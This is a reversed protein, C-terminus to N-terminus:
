VTAPAAATQAAEAQAISQELAVLQRGAQYGRFMFFLALVHMGAGLWDFIALSVVGDLLFVVMGAIYAWFQRKNALVGFGVFMATIFIDLVIAIVKTADGLEGATAYAIADILQTTGLSLFFRWGGGLLSMISTILTLGAIWYFWNAGSKFSENLTAHQAYDNYM